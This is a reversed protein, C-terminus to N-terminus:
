HPACAFGEQQLHGEEVGARRGQAPWDSNVVANIRLLSSAARGSVSNFLFDILYTKPFLDWEALIQFM